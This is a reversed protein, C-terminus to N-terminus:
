ASCRPCTTRVSGIGEVSRATSSMREAVELGPHAGVAFADEGLQAVLPGTEKWSSGLGSARREADVERLAGAEPRDRAVGVDHLHRAIGVGEVRRRRDVDGVHGGLERLPEARHDVHVRRLVRLQPQMTLRPKVGRCTRSSRPTPARGPAPSRRGVDRRHALAVEHALDGGRQRQLDDAVHHADRSSSLWRMKSSVLTSGRRRRDRTRARRMSSRIPAPM